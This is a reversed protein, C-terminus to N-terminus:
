VLRVPLQALNKAWCLYYRKVMNTLAKIGPLDSADAIDVIRGDKMKININDISPLYASNTAVGEVLFYSLEDPQVGASLLQQEFEHRLEGAFPQDSMVIKFLRRDLLMQCLTALVRDPHQSWFKICTWIDYDDLHSFAKLYHPQHEIDEITIKRSLFVHLAPTTFVAQTDTPDFEKQSLLFRARRIIQVLMAEACLSTKHLYVQWYMLRRSSLFNEISLIGKAEVVLHDNVLDLMKIIRDAGITGEAVGTYFCDRNLYDMRDMDLQSSVLQHFFPRHYTGEFMRIALTLGGNFQRNLEHMLLLSLREHPIGELISYELVHSFPGHGIDHLLIAIQAADCEAETIRHGKGRLTQIAQGMLHMAGLAHHFRTHLAGPYVLESLGLQKIRRLRQFYPHEVLDFILENPLTIFGYVPDNLIKKKNQSAM